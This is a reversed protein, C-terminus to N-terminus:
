GAAIALGMVGAMFLALVVGTGRAIDPAQALGLYRNLIVSAKGWALVLIALGTAIGGSQSWAIGTAALSLAMLIVWARTVTM